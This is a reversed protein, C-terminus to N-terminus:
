LTIKYLGCTYGCHKFWSVLDSKSIEEFAVRISKKFARETRPALKRLRNKIKSWRNEIPSFDPSYSPLSIVKAGKLEIKEAVRVQVPV